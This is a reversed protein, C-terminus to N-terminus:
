VELVMEASRLSCSEFCSGNNSVFAFLSLMVLGIAALTLIDPLFFDFFEDDPEGALLASFSCDLNQLCSFALIRFSLALLAPALSPPNRREDSENWRELGPLLDLGSPVDAATFSPVLSGDSMGSSLLVFVMRDARDVWEVFDELFV